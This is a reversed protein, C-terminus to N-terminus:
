NKLYKEPQHKRHWKMHCSRCRMELNSLENNFHDGDKHHVCLGHTRKCKVCEQKLNQKSLRRYEKEHKGIGTIRQAAGIKEKTEESLKRGLCNKNGHMSNSINKKHSETKNKWPNLDNNIQSESLTRAKINHKLMFRKVRTQNWGIIVAIQRQSKNEELYLRKILEKM